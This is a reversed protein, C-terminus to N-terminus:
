ASHAVLADLTASLHTLHAPSSLRHDGGKILMVEADQSALRECLEVSLQWPVEADALGHILRVPCDIALPGDLVLHRRGEEVLHWTLVDPTGYPSVRVLHGDSRLRQREAEDLPQWILRETFDPAAAITLLAAVRDPRARTALTALWGGLSSGVVVLPGTTLHDIVALSDDLWRGVSGDTFAGSSEGHGFYDFRVYGLGRSRCHADLFTAKTGGMDSRFGGLFVVTPSNGMAARYAITAGDDRLLTAPKLTSM